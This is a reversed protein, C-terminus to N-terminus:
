HVTVKFRPRDGSNNRKCIWNSGGNRTILVTEGDGVAVGSNYSTFKIDNLCNKTYSTQRSSYAGKYNFILGQNGAGWGLSGWLLYIRNVGSSTLFLPYSWGEGAVFFKRIFGESGVIIVDFPLGEFYVDKFSNTYESRTPYWTEGGDYTKLITGLDGVAIGYKETSFHIGYLNVRTNSEKQIWTNGWDTTKLITGKDGIIWGLTDSIFFIRNLNESVPSSKQMWSSGGNKTVLITGNKGICWGNTSSPFVIDTLDENTLKEM